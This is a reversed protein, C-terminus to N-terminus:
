LVRRLETKYRQTRALYSAVGRDIDDRRARGAKIVAPTGVALAGAPVETDNLVVANAAVIAGSRVIARHLV